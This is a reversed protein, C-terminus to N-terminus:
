NEPNVGALISAKKYQDSLAQKAKKDTAQDYATKLAKQYIVLDAQIKEIFVEDFRNSQDANTLLKDTTLKKGASLEKGSINRGQQKIAALLPAKESELSLKTTIAINRGATTRAKQTGIDAIRILETQQQAAAVLSETGSKNSSFFLSVIM